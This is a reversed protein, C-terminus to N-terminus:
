FHRSVNPYTPKKRWEYNPETWSRPRVGLQIYLVMEM